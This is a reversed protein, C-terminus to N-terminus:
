KKFFEPKLIILCFNGHRLALPKKEVHDVEMIWRKFGKKMDDFKSFIHAFKSSGGKAFFDTLVSGVM